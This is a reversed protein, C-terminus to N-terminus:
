ARIRLGKLLMNKVSCQQYRDSWIDLAVLNKLSFGIHVMRIVSYLFYITFTVKEECSRLNQCSLIEDEMRCLGNQGPISIETSIQIKPSM